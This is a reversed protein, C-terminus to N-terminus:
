RAGPGREHQVSHRWDAYRRARVPICESEHDMELFRGIHDNPSTDVGIIFSTGHGGVSCNMWTLKRRLVLHLKSIIWSTITFNRTASIATQSQGAVV